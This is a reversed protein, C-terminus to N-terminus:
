LKDERNKNHEIRKEKRIQRKEERSRNIYYNLVILTILILLCLYNQFINYITGLANIKFQYKGEIESFYVPDKDEINNNDGKTIYINEGNEEEIKSIRHTTIIGEKKFAIIDGEKLLQRDVEKTVVIDNVNIADQMSGSVIVFAKYGLFDPTKEPTIIKKLIIVSNYIIIPIIIIYILINIIKWFFDIRKAEKEVKNIKYM